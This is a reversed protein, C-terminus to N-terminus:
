QEGGKSQTKWGNGRRFVVQAQDGLQYLCAELDLRISQRFEPHQLLDELLQDLSTYQNSLIKKALEKDVTETHSTVQTTSQSELQTELENIREQLQEVRRKDGLKLQGQERLYRAEQILDQLYQSMSTDHEAAESKWTQKQTKPTYIKVLATDDSIGSSTKWGTM